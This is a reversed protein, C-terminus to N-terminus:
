RKLFSAATAWGTALVKFWGPSGKRNPSIWKKQLAYQVYPDDKDLLIYGDQTNSGGKALADCWEVLKKRTMQEIFKQEGKSRDEFPTM